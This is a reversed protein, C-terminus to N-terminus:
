IDDNVSCVLGPEEGPMFCQLCGTCEEVTEPRGELSKSVLEPDAILARGLAVMDAMGEALANEVQELKLVGGVAIVPIDVSKKIEGALKIINGEAAEQIMLAGSDQGGASVHIIDLGDEIFMKVMELSENVTLGGEVYEEVSMRVGLVFDDGVRERTKRLIERVINARKETSGGYKDSRRNAAPSLFQNLLYSHAAHVEVMEAGASKAAEASHVFQGIIQEIEELTLERPTIGTLPSAIASPGVVDGGALDPMLARGGHNIQVAPVSGAERIADFLKRASAIHRDEYLCLARAGLKSTPSVGTAGVISLGVASKAIRQHFRILRDTAEGDETAYNTQIPAFAVSNPFTTKKITLPQKTLEYTM